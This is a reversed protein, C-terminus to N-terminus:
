IEDDFGPEDYWLLSVKKDDGIKQWKEISDKVEVWGARIETAYFARSNIRGAEQQENAWAYFDSESDTEVLAMVRGWKSTPGSKLHTYVGRTAKSHAPGSLVTEGQGSESIILADCNSRSPKKPPNEAAIVDAHLFIM